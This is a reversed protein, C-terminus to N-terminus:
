VYYIRFSVVPEGSGWSTMEWPGLFERQKEIEEHAPEIRNAVELESDEKEKWPALRSLGGEWRSGYEEEQGTDEEAFKKCGANEPSHGPAPLLLPCSHGAPHVAAIISPVLKLDQSTLPALQPINPMFLSPIPLFSGYRNCSGSSCSLVGLLFLFGASTWGPVMAAQM